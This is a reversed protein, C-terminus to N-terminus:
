KSDLPSRIAEARRAEHRAAFVMMVRFAIAGLLQLVLGIGIMRQTKKMDRIHPLDIVLLDASVAGPLGKAAEPQIGSGVPLLYGQIPDPPLDTGVQTVPKAWVVPRQAPQHGDPMLLPVFVWTPKETKTDKDKYLHYYPTGPKFDTVQVYSNDLPGAASLEALTMRKPESYSRQNLSFDSAHVGCIVLGVLFMGAPLVLLEGTSWHSERPVRKSRSPPARNRNLPNGGRALVDYVPRNTISICTGIIILTKLYEIVQAREEDTLDDGYTHGGNSRGPKSSTTFRGSNSQPCNRM